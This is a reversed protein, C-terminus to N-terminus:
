SLFYKQKNAKRRYTSTDLLGQGVKLAVTERIVPALQLLELYSCIQACRPIPVANYPEQCFAASEAYLWRLLRDSVLPCINEMAEIFEDITLCSPITASVKILKSENELIRPEKCKLIAYLFFECVIHKNARNESFSIYDIIFQDLDDETLFPYIIKAFEKFDAAQQWNVRDIFDNNLLIYRFCVPDLGGGLEQVFLQLTKNTPAYTELGLIFDHMSLYVVDWVLYRDYFFQYLSDSITCPHVDETHFEDRYVIYSYFQKVLSLVREENIPRSIERSLTSRINFDQWIFDYAAKVIAMRITLAIFSEINVMQEETAGPKDKGPQLIEEPSLEQLNLFEDSQRRLLRSVSSMALVQKSAAAFSKSTAIKPRFKLKPRTIKLHTCNEPLNVTFADKNVKHPCLITKEGCSTCLKADTIPLFTKGNDTSAYIMAAYKNLVQEQPVFPDDLDQDEKPILGDFKVIKDSGHRDITVQSGGPLSIAIDEDNEDSDDMVRLTRPKSTNSPQKYTASKNTKINSELNKMQNIIAEEQKKLLSIEITIDEINRKFRAQVDVYERAAKSFKRAQKADLNEVNAQKNGRNEMYDDYEEIIQNRIIFMQKLMEKAEVANSNAQSQLYCQTIVWRTSIVPKKSSMKRKMDFKVVPDLFSDDLKDYSRRFEKVYNLENKTRTLQLKLNDSDKTKKQLVEDHRANNNEMEHKMRILDEDKSQIKDELQDIEKRFEAQLDLLRKIRMNAEDLEENKEKIMKNFDKLDEKLKDANENRRTYLEKVLIFYPMKYLVPNNQNQVTRSMSSYEDSYVSDFLEERCIQIVKQFVGLHPLIEELVEFCTFTREESPGSKAKKKLELLKMEYKLSYKGPSNGTFVGGKDM